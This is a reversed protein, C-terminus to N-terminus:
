RKRDGEFDRPTMQAIMRRDLVREHRRKLVTMLDRQARTSLYWWCVGVARVMLVGALVVMALGPLLVGLASALRAGTSVPAGDYRGVWAISTLMMLLVIVGLHVSWPFRKDMLTLDNWREGTIGYFKRYEEHYEAPIMM